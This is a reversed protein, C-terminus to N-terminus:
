CKEPVCGSVDSEICRETNFYTHISDYLRYVKMYNKGLNLKLIHTKFTFWFQLSTGKVQVNVNYKM